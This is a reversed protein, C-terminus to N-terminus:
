QAEDESAVVVDVVRKYHPELGAYWDAFSVGKPPQKALEGKVQENISNVVPKFHDPLATFWDAFSVTDVYKVESYYKLDSLLLAQPDAIDDMTANNPLPLIARVAAIEVCYDPVYRKLWEGIRERGRDEEAKARTKNTNGKARAHLAVAEGYEQVAQMLKLRTIKMAQPM